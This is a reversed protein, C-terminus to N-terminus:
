DYALSFLATANAMGSRVSTDVALVRAYFPLSVNASLPTLNTPQTATNVPILAKQSDYIAIAVGTASADDATLALLAPNAGNATGSFTVSVKNAESGCKELHLTFPVYNGGEGVRTFQKSSINGMEVQITKSDASVTCTRSIITGTIQLNYADDAMATSARLALIAAAWLASRIMHKKM